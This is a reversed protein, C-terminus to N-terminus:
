LQSTQELEKLKTEPFLVLIMMLATFTFIGLNKSVDGWGFNLAFYGVLMPSLVYGTRGILQNSWAFANGRMFTPFLEATLANLVIM